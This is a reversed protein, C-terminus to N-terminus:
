QLIHLCFIRIHSKRMQMGEWTGRYAQTHTQNQCQMGRKTYLNLQKECKTHLYAPKRGGGGGGQRDQDYDRMVKTSTGEM